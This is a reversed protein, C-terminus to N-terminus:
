GCCSGRPPSANSAFDVGLQDSIAENVERLLAIMAELSAMEKRHLSHYKIRNTVDALELTDKGDLGEGRRGAKKMKESLTRYHVLLEQLEPDGNVAEKASSWAKWRPEKLIASAMLCAASSIDNTTKGSIPM